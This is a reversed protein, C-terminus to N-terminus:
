YDGVKRYLESWRESLNSAKVFHDREREVLAARIKTDSDSKVDVKAERERVFKEWESLLSRFAIGLAHGEEELSAKEHLFPKWRDIAEAERVAIAADFELHEAERQKMVKAKAALATARKEPSVPRDTPTIRFGHEDDSGHAFFDDRLATIAKPDGRDNSALWTLLDRCYVTLSSVGYIDAASDPFSVTATTCYEVASCYEANPSLELASQKSALLNWEKEAALKALTYAEMSPFIVRLEDVCTEDSEYIVGFYYSDRIDTVWSAESPHVSAFFTLLDYISVTVCSINYLYGAVVPPVIEISLDYYEEEEDNEVHERTEADGAPDGDVPLQALDRLVDDMEVDTQCSNAAVPDARVKESNDTMFSPWIVFNAQFSGECPSSDSGKQPHMGNGNPYDNYTDLGTM